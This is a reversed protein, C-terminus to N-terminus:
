PLHLKLFPARFLKIECIVTSMGWLYSMRFSNVAVQSGKRRLLRSTGKQKVKADVRTACHANPAAM